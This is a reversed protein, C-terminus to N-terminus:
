GSLSVTLGEYAAVVESIATEAAAERAGELLVDLQDDSRAPDHHFLALRKAGAERAVFVAYDVTCHGWHSKEVFEEPTYQADHILVDVGDCLELVDESVSHTGDQPMQHDSLYAVSAGGMEVRYGNNAGVHPVPRVRVKAGDLVLDTDGADYFTMQGYLQEVTVPFFPPCIFRHFADSLTSDTQPPGYIDLRAGPRLIPTFFPLGQVHDWHLHTVLASGRFTGDQPQTQGFFRLGTGLDLVVPDHGPSELAVCSTNGGYRRNEESPCPTSGRTGYFSVNLLPEGM